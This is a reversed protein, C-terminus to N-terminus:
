PDRATALAALDNTEQQQKKYILASLNQRVKEADKVHHGRRGNGLHTVFIQGDHQRRGKERRERACAAM